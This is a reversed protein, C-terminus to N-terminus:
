KNMNKLIKTIMDNSYTHHRRTDIYTRLTPNSFLAFVFKVGRFNFEEKKILKRIESCTM